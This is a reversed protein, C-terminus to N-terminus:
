QLCLNDEHESFFWPSPLSSLTIYLQDKNFLYVKSHVWRKQLWYLFTLAFPGIELLDIKLISQCTDIERFYPTHTWSNGWCLQYWKGYHYLAFFAIKQHNARKGQRGDDIQWWHLLALRLSFYTVSQLNARKGQCRRYRTQCPDIGSPILPLDYFSFLILRFIRTRWNTCLITRFSLAM